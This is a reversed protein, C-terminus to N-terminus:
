LYDRIIESIVPRRKGSRHKEIIPVIHTELCLDGQTMEDFKKRILEVEEHSFFENGQLYMTVKGAEKQIVQFHEFGKTGYLLHAFFEGHILKGTKCVVFDEIRGKVSELMPLNVGCSCKDVLFKGSDGLRYRIFPMAWNTLSTIVIEGYGDDSVNVIELLMNEMGIHIGKHEACEFGIISFERCGYENFVSGNFFDDIERRQHDDIKDATIIVAKPLPISLNNRKLYRTFVYVASSYGKWYEPKKDRILKLYKHLTEETVDFFNLVVENHMISKLKGYLDVSELLDKENGWLKALGIGLEYGCYKWFRWNNGDVMWESDQDRYFSIPTGTTGGTTGPKLVDADVLKSVLKNVNRSMVDKTLYPIITLDERTKIDSPIIGERDFLERYYPVNEYAYGIMKKLLNDQYAQLEDPSKHQINELFEQYNKAKFYHRGSYTKGIPILIHQSIFDRIM